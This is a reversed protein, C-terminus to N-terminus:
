AISSKTVLATTELIRQLTSRAADPSFNERVNALGNRSLKSWLAEDTYLRVVAKAFDEANSAVLMNEEHASHTGEAAVPTAVAPVGYSMSQTIKGKVGAGYRLPAVSLRCHQFYEAVNPVSGTVIVDAEQLRQFEDPPNRGIVFFRAGPIEKRVAPWIADVFYGVADANPAHDFGGIFMVDQRARFPAISEHVDHINSVVEVRAKPVERLLTERDVGSVVLTLDVLSAVRRERQRAGEAQKLTERDGFLSGQRQIRVFHLDVTDFITLSNPARRKVIDIYKDAVGMRCLFIADYRSAEAALFSRIDTLYPSFMVEIGQSQLRETDPTRAVLDDPILTVKYGLSRLLQLITFLRLSGSDRDPMPVAWDIVLVRGRAYRDPVKWAGAGNEYRNELVDKWKLLFKEQNLALDRQPDSSVDAGNTTREIRVAEAKPQYLVKKGAGRVRFALDTNQYAPSFRLDFGGCSSLLERPIALCAGSCSDVERLYNYEPRDPDHARGFNEASGNRWVILGAEQLKGDSSLLKAGVLGAQPDRQFVDLLAPLWGERVITDNTLSVLYRGRAADVGTMRAAGFDRIGGDRIVRIGSVQALMTWTADDSGDDVVIVEYDVGHTKGCIARLCDFTDTLGDRAVVVISVLPADSSRPFDLPPAAMQSPHSEPVTLATSVMTLAEGLVVARDILGAAPAKPRLASLLFAPRRALLLSSSATFEALHKRLADAALRTDEPRPVTATSLAALARVKSTLSALAASTDRRSRPPRMRDLAQAMRWTKSQALAALVELIQNALPQVARATTDHTRRRDSLAADPLPTAATDQAM